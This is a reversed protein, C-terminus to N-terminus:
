QNNAAVRNLTRTMARQVTPSKTYREIAHKCSVEKSVEFFEMPGLPFHHERALDSFEDRAEPCERRIVVRMAKVARDNRNVIITSLGVISSDVNRDIVDCVYSPDTAPAILAVQYKSDLM